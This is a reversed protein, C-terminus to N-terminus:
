MRTGELRSRPEISLRAQVSPPNVPREREDTEHNKRETDSGTRYRVSMMAPASWSSAKAAIIFRSREGAICRSRGRFTSLKNRDICLAGYSEASRCIQADIPTIFM